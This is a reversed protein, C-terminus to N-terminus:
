PNGKTPIAEPNGPYLPVIFYTWDGGSARAISEAEARSAFYEAAFPQPIWTAPRRFYATVGNRRAQLLYGYGEGHLAAKRFTERIADPTPPEKERGWTLRWLNGEPYPEITSKTDCRSCTRYLPYAVPAPGVALIGVRCYPCFCTRTGDEGTEYIAPAAKVTEAAIWDIRGDKYPPTVSFVERKSLDPTELAERMRDPYKKAESRDITWEGDGAYYMTDKDPATCRFIIM